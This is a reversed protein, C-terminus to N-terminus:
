RTRGDRMLLRAGVVFLGLTLAGFGVIPLAPLTAGFLKGDFFIVTNTLGPNFTADIYGTADFDGTSDFTWTGIDYTSSRLIAPVTMDEQFSAFTCVFPPESNCFQGGTTSWGTLVGVFGRNSETLVGWDIKTTTSGRGTQGGPFTTRVLSRIFIFGGPGSFGTINTTTNSDSGYEFNVFEVVGGGPDDLVVTLFDPLGHSRLVSPSLLGTHVVFFNSTGFIPSQEFNGVVSDDTPLGGSKYAKLAAQSASPLLLVAALLGGVALATFRTRM